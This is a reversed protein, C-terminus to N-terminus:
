HKPSRSRSLVNAALAELADRLDNSQINRTLATARDLHQATPAPNKPAPATSFSAKGESFGVAATQTFRIRAIANYGYCANVKERLKAEQMQIMPASAGSVLVTLTAGFGQRKYSVDVPRAAAAIDTGVIEAWHTLLRTVAFGRKESASRIKGQLLGSAREFGRKRRSQASPPTKPAAM